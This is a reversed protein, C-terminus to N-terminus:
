ALSWGGGGSVYITIVRWNITNLQVQAYIPFSCEELVVKGSQKRTRGYYYYKQEHSFIATLPVGSSNATKDTLFPFWAQWADKDFAMAEEDCCSFQPMWFTHTSLSTVQTFNGYTGPVIPTQVINTASVYSTIKVPPIEMWLGQANARIDVPNYNQGFSRDRADLNYPNVADPIWVAQGLFFKDRDSPGYVQVFLRTGQGLITSSPFAKDDAEPAIINKPSIDQIFHFWPVHDYQGQYGILAQNLNADGDVVKPIFSAIDAFPNVIIPLWFSIKNQGALEPQNDKMIAGAPFITHVWSTHSYGVISVPMSLLAPNYRVGFNGLPRDYRAMTDPISAKELGVARAKQANYKGPLYFTHEYETGPITVSGQAQARIALEVSLRLPEESSLLAAVLGVAAFAAGWGTSGIALMGTILGSSAAVGSKNVSEYANRGMMFFDVVSKGKKFLSVIQSAGGGEQIAEGIAKGFIDLDVAGKQFPLVTLRLQLNQSGGETTDEYLSDYIESEKSQLFSVQGTVSNPESGAPGNVKGPLGKVMPYLIPTEVFAWSGKPWPHTVPITISSWRDSRPDVPFFAGELPAQGGEAWLSFIVTYGSIDADDFDHNFLYARLRGLRENYFVFSFFKSFKRQEPNANINKGLLYWGRERVLEPQPGAVLQTSGKAWPKSLPVLMGDTAYANIWPVQLDGYELDDCVLLAEQSGEPAHMVELGSLRFARAVVNPGTELILYFQIYPAQDDITLKCPITLNQFDALSSFIWREKADLKANYVLLRDGNCWDLDIEDFLLRFADIDKTRILWTHRYNPPLHGPNILAPFTDGTWTMGQLRCVSRIKLIAGVRKTVLDWWEPSGLSPLELPHRIAAFMEGGARLVLEEVLKDKGPEIRELKARLFDLNESSFGNQVYGAAPHEQTRKTRTNRKM